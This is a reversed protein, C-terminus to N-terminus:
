SSAAEKSLSKTLSGLVKCLITFDELTYVIVQIYIFHTTWVQKHSHILQIQIKSSIIRELMHEFKELFDILARTAM